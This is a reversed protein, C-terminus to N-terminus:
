RCSRRGDHGGRAARRARRCARLRRRRAGGAGAPGADTDNDLRLFAGRVQPMTTRRASARCIPCSCSRAAAGPRRERRARVADAAGAAGTLRAVWDICSAARCICRWRTGCAPCATASRMSRARRIPGSTPRDRRLDRGVHRAVAVRRRRAVVGVGSRARPMTAAAARSRCRRWAGSSPSRPACRAPSRRQRRVARPMQAQTSAPRPSCHRRELRADAVDLWLTGASDSM